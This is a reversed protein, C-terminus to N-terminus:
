AARIDTRRREIRGIRSGLEDALSRLADPGVEELVAIRRVVTSQLDKPLAALLQVARSRSLSGVIVAITQPHEDIMAALLDQNSIGRALAALSPPAVSIAARNDRAFENFATQLEDGGIALRAL